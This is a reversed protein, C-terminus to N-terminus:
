KRMLLFAGVALLGLPLLWSQQGFVGTQQAVPVIRRTVPDYRYGPPVTQGSPQGQIAKVISAGTSLVTGAIDKVAGWNIASWWDGGQQMPQTQAMVVSGGSPDIANGDFITFTSDPNLNIITGSSIDTVVGGFPDISIEQGLGKDYM